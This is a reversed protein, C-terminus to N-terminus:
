SQIDDSIKNFDIQSLANKQCINEAKPGAQVEESCQQAQRELMEFQNRILVSPQGQGAEWTQIETQSCQIRRALDAQTWGLRRRLNKIEDKNWQPNMNVGDRLQLLGM